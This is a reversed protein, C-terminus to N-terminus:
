VKQMTIHSKNEFANMSLYTSLTLILLSSMIIGSISAMFVVIRGSYTAPVYDGYGVTGMTIIICWMCNGLDNFHHDINRDSIKLMQGFTILQTLFIFFLVPLPDSNFFAKMGFNLDFKTGYIRCIRNSRTSLYISSEAIGFYILYLRFLM